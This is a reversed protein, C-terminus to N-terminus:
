GKGHPVGKRTKARARSHPTRGEEGPLEIGCRSALEAAILRTMAAADSRPRFQTVPQRATIAKNFDARHGMTPGFVWSKFRARIAAEYQVHDTTRGVLTLIYGGMALGPNPGRRARDFSELVPALGQAAFAEPQVPVVLHTAARLAAESLGLLNPPCDILALDFRPSLEGLFDALSSDAPRSLCEALQRTGPILKAAPVGISVTCAEPAGTEDDRYAALITRDPNLGGTDVPGLFAQTLSAQPDNDVLLVKVGLDSLAASLHFCASTKGVGGKQNLMTVVRM